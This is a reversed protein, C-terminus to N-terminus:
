TFMDFSHGFHWYKTLYFHWKELIYELKIEITNDRLFIYLKKQQFTLPTSVKTLYQIYVCVNKNICNIIMKIIM